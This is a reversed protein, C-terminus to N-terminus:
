DAAHKARKSGGTSKSHSGGDSGSDSDAKASGGGDNDSAAAATRKVADSVGGNIARNILIRGQELGLRISRPTKEAIAKAALAEEEAPLEVEELPVGTGITVQETVLAVDAAGQVAANWMAVPKLSKIAETLNEGAKISAAIITNVANVTAAFALGGADPIAVVLNQAVALQQQLVKQVTGVVQDTVETLPGLTAAQITQIAGEVDGALAQQTAIVLQGPLSFAASGLTWAGGAVATTVAFLYKTQNGLVSRVIPLPDDIESQIATYVDAFTAELVPSFAEFPNVPQLVMATNEVAIVRTPLAAVHTPAMPAVAIAGAGLMAIGAILHSRVAIQM